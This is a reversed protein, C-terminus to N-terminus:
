LMTNTAMLYGIFGFVAAIGTMAIIRQVETVEILQGEAAGTNAKLKMSLNWGAIGEFMGILTNCAIVIDIAYNKSLMYGIVTYIAFSVPSLLGYNFNWKRSAVAGTTNLLAILAIGALIYPLLSYNIIM